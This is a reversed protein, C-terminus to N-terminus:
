GSTTLSAIADIEIGAGLPLAAAQITNNGSSAADIIAYKVESTADPLETVKLAGFQNSRLAQLDNDATTLTHRGANKPNVFDLFPDRPAAAFGTSRM